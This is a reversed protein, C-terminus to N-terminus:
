RTARTSRASRASRPARSRRAASTTKVKVTNGSADDVYLTKGDVNAVTGVTADSGGAAAGGAARRRRRQFGGAARAGAGGARRARRAVEPGARRRPLRARRDAVAALGVGVPTVLRRRERRPLEPELDITDTM